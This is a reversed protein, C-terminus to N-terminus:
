LRIMCWGGWREECGGDAFDTMEVKITNRIEGGVRKKGGTLIRTQDPM